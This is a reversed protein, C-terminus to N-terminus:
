DGMINRTLSYIILSVGLIVPWQTWSESKHVGELYKGRTPEPLLLGVAVAIWFLIFIPTFLHQELASSLDGKILAKSGTTLGCGPCKYESVQRIPCISLYIGRLSLILYALGGGLMSWGLKRNELLISLLRIRAHKGKPEDEHNAQSGM